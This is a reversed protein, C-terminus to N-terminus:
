PAKREGFVISDLAVCGPGALLLAISAACLMIVFEAGTPLFFGNKGHVFAIAGLMDIALGLAVLRTLFGAILAIGGLFELWTVLFSTIEPAPVGMHTFGGVMAAHGMSVKMWGHGLFVVGLVIRLVAIGVLSSRASAARLLSPM